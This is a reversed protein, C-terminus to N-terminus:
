QGYGGSIIFLTHPIHKRVNITISVRIQNSPTRVYTASKIGCLVLLTKTVVFTHICCTGCMGPIICIYVYIYM